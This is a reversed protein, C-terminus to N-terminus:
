NWNTGKSLRKLETRTEKAIAGRWLRINNLIYFCQVKIEIPDTMRSGAEAYGVAYNVAPLNRDGIIRTCCVRFSEVNNAGFM